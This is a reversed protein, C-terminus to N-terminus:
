LINWKGSRRYSNLIRRVIKKVKDDEDNWMEELKEIVKDELDVPSGDALSHVAQMRVIASKDDTMEFVRDWVQDVKRLLKCPCLRTLARKREAPKESYTERLVQEIETNSLIKCKVM